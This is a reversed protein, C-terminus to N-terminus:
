NELAMERREFKELENWITSMHLTSRWRQNALQVLVDISNDRAPPNPTGEMMTEM